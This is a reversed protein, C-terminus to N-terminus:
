MGLQQKIKAIEDLVKNLEEEKEKVIQPNIKDQGFKKMFQIKEELSAKKKELLELKKKLEQIEKTSLTQKNSLDLSIYNNVIKIKKEDKLEKIVQDLKEKQYRKELELIPIVKRQELEKLITNKLDENELSKIAEQYAEQYLQKMKEAQRKEIIEKYKEFDFKDLEELIANLEDRLIKLRYYIDLLEPQVM